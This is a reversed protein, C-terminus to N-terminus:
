SKTGAAIKIMGAADRCAFDVGEAAAYYIVETESIRTGEIAEEIREAIYGLCVIQANGIGITGRLEAARRQDAAEVSFNFEAAVSAWRDNRLGAKLVGVGQRPHMAVMVETEPGIDNAAVHIEKDGVKAALPEEIDPRAGAIKGAIFCRLQQSSKDVVVRNGSRVRYICPAPLGAIEGM